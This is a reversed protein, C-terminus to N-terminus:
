SIMIVFGTDIHHRQFGSVRDFVPWLHFRNDLVDNISLLSMAAPVVGALTIGSAIRTNCLIREESEPSGGPRSDINWRLDPVFRSSPMLFSLHLRSHESIM